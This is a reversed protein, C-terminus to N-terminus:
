LGLLEGSVSFDELSARIEALYMANMALVLCPQIERLHEPAHIELGTGPLFKGHRHPNIDVVCISETDIELSSIFSVCKSGSGWIALPQDGYKSLKENWHRQKGTVEARFKTVSDLTESIGKELALPGERGRTSPVAELMLYQDGYGRYLRTVHFGCHRFLRALSGPTFYSCHEHYIDEYACTELVREVDPVEFFVPTPRDGIVKRLMKIFAGVNHIHELTHRCCFFDAPFTSHGSDLTEAVWRIDNGSEKDMQRPAVSPDIGTGRNGVSACLLKLFDGKGCGIEVIDKDYLDFRDVLSKALSEAFANFTPSFSQQDEYEPSYAIKDSDFRVNTIFGCANCVALELDACPFEKAKDVTPM